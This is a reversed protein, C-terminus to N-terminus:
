KVVEDNKMLLFGHKKTWQRRGCVKLALHTHAHQPTAEWEDAGEWDREVKEGQGNKQVRWRWKRKEKRRWKEKSMRQTLTHSAQITPGDRREGEEEKGSELNNEDGERACFGSTWKILTHHCKKKRRQQHARQKERERVQL